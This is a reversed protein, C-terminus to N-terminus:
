PVKGGGQYSGMQAYTENRTAEDVDTFTEVRSLIKRMKKEDSKKMKPNAFLAYMTLGFVPMALILFIWPIKYEPNTRKNVIKFFVIMAIIDCAVQAVWALENLLAIAFQIAFLQLLMLLAMPFFKSFIFKFAKM